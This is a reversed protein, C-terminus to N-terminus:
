RGGHWRRSREDHDTVLRTLAGPRDRQRVSKSVGFQDNRPLLACCKSPSSCAIFFRMTPATATAAILM